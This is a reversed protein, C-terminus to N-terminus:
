KQLGVDEMLRMIDARVLQYPMSEKFGTGKRLMVDVPSQSHQYSSLENQKQTEHVALENIERERERRLVGCVQNLMPLVVNEFLTHGQMYLYTTEPTLGLDLLEQRLPAYTSRGEPFINQLWGIKKNVKRRVFDLTAAPRFVNLDRFTVVDAFHAMSFQKYFGYRYAWINWVFLPWIIESYEQLFAEFNMVQRDNLTSMVCTTHLSPAYCQFNEIAYVYTHIVYPSTCLLRSVESAGQMLWDYDADVCAIMYEGLGPGLQNMLASKKGRCLTTRSPLVVEFYFKETEYEQLVSRWFFVDDYSEVYAVIKKRANRPKLKNASAIYRSTLNDQLKKM